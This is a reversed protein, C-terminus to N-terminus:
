RWSWAYQQWLWEGFLSIGSHTCLARITQMCYEDIVYEEIPDDPTELIDWHGFIILIPESKLKCNIRREVVGNGILMSLTIVLLKFVINGCEANCWIFCTWKRAACM